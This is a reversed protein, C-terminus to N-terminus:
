HSARAYITDLAEKAGEDLDMAAQIAESAYLAQAASLIAMLPESKDPPQSSHAVSIKRHARTENKIVANRLARELMDTNLGDKSLFDHVGTQMASRVLDDTPQGSLMIVPIPGSVSKALLRRVLEIGDGDPLRYDVLLCDFAEVALLQLASTVDIAEEISIEMTSRRILRRLTRRDHVSDDILLVRM